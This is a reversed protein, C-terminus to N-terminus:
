IKIKIRQYGAALELDVKELLLDLNAQLGISVGSNVEEQTGGLHRWLPQNALRAELDWIACEVGGKAMRNGRIRALGENVQDAQEVKVDTLLKGVFKSIIFWA